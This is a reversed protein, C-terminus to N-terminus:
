EGENTNVATNTVITVDYSFEFSELNAPDIIEEKLPQVITYNVNDDSNQGKAAIYVIQLLDLATEGSIVVSPKQYWTKNALPISVERGSKYYLKLSVNSVNGNKQLTNAESRLLNQLNQATINM